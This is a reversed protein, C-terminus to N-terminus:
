WKDGNKGNTTYCAVIEFPNNSQLQLILLSTAFYRLKDLLKAQTVSLALMPINNEFKCLKDPSIRKEKRDSRFEPAQKTQKVNESAEYKNGNIILTTSGAINM